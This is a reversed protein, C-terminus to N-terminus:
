PDDVRATMAGGLALGRAGWEYIAFGAAQVVGATGLVICLSLLLRLASRKM